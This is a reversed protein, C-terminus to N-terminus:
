NSSSAKVAEAMTQAFTKKAPAAQGTGGTKPLATNKRDQIVKLQGIQIGNDRAQEAIRDVNALKHLHFLYTPYDFKGNVMSPEILLREILRTPDVAMERFAQAESENMPVVVREEDKDGFRVETGGFDSLAQDVSAEIAKTDIQPQAGAQVTKADTWEKQYKQIANEAERTKQDHKDKLVIDEDTMAGFDQEYVKEFIQSARERTLDPRSLVFAEFQKEKAGLTKLDLQQVRLYQSAATLELGSAKLAHEYIKKATENPFPLEKNQLQVKLAENDRLVALIQEPKTIKGGTSESLFETVDNQFDELGYAAETAAAGAGAKADDGQDPDDTKGADDKNKGDPDDATGKDDAAGADDGKDPDDTAAGAGKGDDTATAGADDGAGAGAGTKDDTDKLDDNDAVDTAATAGSRDTIKMKSADFGKFPHDAM